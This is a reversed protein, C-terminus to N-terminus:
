DDERLQSNIFEELNVFTDPGNFVSPQESGPLLYTAFDIGGAVGASRFARFIVTDGCNFNGVSLLLPNLDDVPVGFGTTGGAGSGGVFVAADTPLLNEGLGIKTVPSEACSYLVGIDSNLGGPNTILRTTQREPRTLFVGDDVVFDGNDDVVLVEREITVIFELVQDSDNRVRVLVFAAGPGPTVPVEGGVFTNVFATNLFAGSACGPPAFVSALVVTLVAAVMWKPAFGLRRSSRKPHTSVNERMLPTM